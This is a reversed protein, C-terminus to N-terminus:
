DDKDGSYQKDKNWVSYSEDSIELLNFDSMDGKEVKERIEKLEKILHEYECCELEKKLEENEEKLSEIITQQENIKELMEVEGDFDSLMYQEELKDFKKHLDFLANHYDNVDEELEKNEKKLQENEDNLSNLLNLLLDVSKKDNRVLIDNKKNKLDRISWTLNNDNSLFKYFRKESMM